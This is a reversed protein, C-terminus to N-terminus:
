STVYIGEALSLQAKPETKDKQVGVNLIFSCLTRGRLSLLFILLSFYHNRPHLHLIKKQIFPPSSCPITSFKM